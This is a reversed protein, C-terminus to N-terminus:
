PNCFDCSAPDAYLKGHQPVLNEKYCCKPCGYIETKIENTKNGCWNCPLGVEIKLKGWGPTACKPCLCTLRYALKEGLIKLTQMRTPNFHARMDTEVWVKNGNSLKYVTNFAYELENESVLGKIILGNSNRPCPQLILAHSPFNVSNAFQILQEYNEVEQMKYNTDTFIETEFLHFDRIVDIFYLIEIGAPIFPMAPHPGFSGESSIAFKASKDIISIECKKRAVEIPTGIRAIEGSFTGLQDTDFNYEIIQAGLIQKFPIDLALHKQHKTTLFIFCDKYVSTTISM